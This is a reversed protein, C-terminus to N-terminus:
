RLDLICRGLKQPDHRLLDQKEWLVRQKDVSEVLDARVVNVDLEYLAPDIRVLGAGDAEYRQLIPSPPVHNNVLVDDLMGDGLYRMVAKAHDSAAHGDTQGPQTVINCVYVVRANARRIARTIGHVLLNTIVSTYLSGPGIVILEAQEIESMVEETAAADAPELFVEEIPAKDRARVHYEQKVVTGDALRACVHTDTLTSPLVKGEITLIESAARLASEFSGTTKELAALFLNGFSMGKLAGEEFRYRFLDYLRKEELETSSLAILCNRADGPPLVGLDKRLIGSSRGSDTVTVVATLNTTDRKLGELIIPLGTGGGIAVIRMARQARRKNVTQLVDPLAGIHRIKYDPEELPNKPLLSQFRGHVMQVTTMKLYNSVRIESHIRDGVSVVEQPTLGHRQLLDLFCEERAAGVERDNVIIEDFLGRIGLLDIKTQQRRHVGTTVLFLQYGQVRFKMLTPVVDPFPAIEEVEDSNYADLAAQVVTEGMGYMEAVRDFVHFRPGYRQSLDKQRCMAEDVSCPLGADVMAKAARRRAADTLLGSCDYLTDDLDFIIAKIRGM